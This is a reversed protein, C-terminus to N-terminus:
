LPRSISSSMVSILIKRLYYFTQLGAASGPEGKRPGNAFLLAVAASILVVVDKDSPPGRRLEGAVTAARPAGPQSRKRPPVDDLTENVDSSALFNRLVLTTMKYSEMYFGM